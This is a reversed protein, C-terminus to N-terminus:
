PNFQIVGAGSFIGGVSLFGGELTPDYSYSISSGLAINLDHLTINNTSNTVQVTPDLSVTFSGTVPDVPAPDPGSGVQFTDATFGINYTVVDSNALSPLAVMTFLVLIPGSAHRTLDSLRCPFTRM